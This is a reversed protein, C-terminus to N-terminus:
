ILSFQHKEQMVLLIFKKCTFVRQLVQWFVNQLFWRLNIQVVHQPSRASRAGSASNSASITISACLLEGGGPGATVTAAVGLTPVGTVGPALRWNTKICCICCICCCSNWSCCCITVNWTGAACGVRVPAERAMLKM